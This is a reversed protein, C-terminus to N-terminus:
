GFKTESPTARFVRRSRQQSGTMSTERRLCSNRRYSVMRLWRLWSKKASICVSLEDKKKTDNSQSEQIRKDVGGSVLVLVSAGLDCRFSRTNFTKNGHIDSGHDLVVCLLYLHSALAKQCKEQWQSGKGVSSFGLLGISGRCGIHNFARAALV